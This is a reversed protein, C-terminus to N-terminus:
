PLGALNLLPIRIGGGGIGFIGSMCGAFLGILFFIIIQDLAM